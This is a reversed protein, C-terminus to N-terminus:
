DSKTAARGRLSSTGLLAKIEKSIHALIKRSDPSVEKIWYRKAERGNKELLSHFFALKGKFEHAQFFMSKQHFRKPHCLMELENLRFRILERLSIFSPKVTRSKIAPDIAKGTARIVEEVRRLHNLCEIRKSGAEQLSVEQGTDAHRLYFMVTRLNEVRPQDIPFLSHLLHLVRKLERVNGPWRNTKLEDLIEPSLTKTQDKTVECWFGQALLPIDEPNNRLSPTYIVLDRLRYYLDERFQGAQTMSFLNRNTAAIVRADVKIEKTGGVTRIKGKELARLIKAQHRLSLDGIEDLFLTGKEALEWLGKKKSTANTFAGKEHGFLESELLYAPIGGCNVPIFIESDRKSYDHIARAVVEKGTGTDGLILVTHNNGAARLIMARVLQAEDSAGIYLQSLEPPIECPGMMDLMIRPLATRGDGLAALSPTEKKRGTQEWLSNFIDEAAGIIYLNREETNLANGLLTRISRKLQGLNDYNGDILPIKKQGLLLNSLAKAKHKKGRDVILDQFKKLTALDQQKILYAAPLKEDRAREFQRSNDLDLSARLPLADPQNAFFKLIQTEM